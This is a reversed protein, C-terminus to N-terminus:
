NTILIISNLITLILGMIALFLAISSRKSYKKMIGYLNHINKSYDNKM